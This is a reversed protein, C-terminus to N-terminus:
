AKLIKTADEITKVEEPFKDQYPLIENEYIEKIDDIIQKQQNRIEKDKHYREYEGDDKKIKKDREKEFDKVNENLKDLEKEKDNIENEISNLEEKLHNVIEDNEKNQNKQSKLKALADELLHIAVQIDNFGRKKREMFSFFSALPNKKSM